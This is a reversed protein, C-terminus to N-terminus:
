NKAASEQTLGYKTSSSDAARVVEIPDLDGRQLNEILALAAAQEDTVDKHHGPVEDLSRQLRAARWRREGAIIIYGTGM